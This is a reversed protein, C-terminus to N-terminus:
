RRRKDVTEVARSTVALKALNSPQPCGELWSGFAREYQLAMEALTSLEAEDMAARVYTAFRAGAQAMERDRDEQDSATRPRVM